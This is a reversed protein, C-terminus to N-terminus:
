FCNIRLWSRDSFDEDGDWFVVNFQDIIAGSSDAHTAAGKQLDIEVSVSFLNDIESLTPKSVYAEVILLLHCLVFNLFVSLALVEYFIRSSDTQSM